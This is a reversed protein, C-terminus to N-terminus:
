APGLGHRRQSAVHRPQSAAAGGGRASTLLGCRNRSCALVLGVHAPQQVGVGEHAQHLLAWPQALRPQCTPGAAALEKHPVGVWLPMPSWGAKCSPAEATQQAPCAALLGGCSDPCAAEERPGAACWGRGRGGATPETVSGSPLVWCSSVSASAASTCRNSGEASSSVIPKKM